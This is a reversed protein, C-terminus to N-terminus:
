ELLQAKYEDLEVQYTKDLKLKKYVRFLYPAMEIEDPNDKLYQRYQEMAAVFLKQDEYYNGLMFLNDPYEKQLTAISDDVKKQDGGGLWTVTRENLKGRQKYPKMALVKETGKYADIKYTVTGKFPKIKARVLTSKGAAVDYTRDGVTLKYSFEKGTSEWVIYPYEAYVVLDRVADIRNKSKKHSRRVTTFSQSKDFRKMLSAALKSGSEAKELSGKTAKLAKATVQIEANAGIAFTEGTLKNTIKGSGDKGTRIAYGKFLFKNRRVKKWNKGRKQYEVQGQVQSIVAVPDKPGAFAISSFMFILVSGLALINKISKM